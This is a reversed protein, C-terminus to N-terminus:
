AIIMITDGELVSDEKNVNISKVTGDKGAHIENGMKMAELICVVDDAKVAQGEKVYLEKITGPLPSEIVYDGAAATAQKAAPKKAPAPTPAAAPTESAVPAVKKVVPSAKPKGELEVSFAKGNVEVQAVNNEDVDGVAVKYEKGNIKYKYEKM